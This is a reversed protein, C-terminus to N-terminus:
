CKIKQAEYVEKCINQFNVCKPSRTLDIEPLLVKKVFEDMNEPTKYTTKRKEILEKATKPMFGNVDAGVNIATPLLDVLAAGGDKKAHVHSYFHYRGKYFGDWEAHPYHSLFLDYEGDSILLNNHIEEFCQRFTIHTLQMIDWNGCILIKRCKIQRLIPVVNDPTAVDGLIHLVDDDSATSNINDILAQNMEDVNKFPRNSTQLVEESNFHLCGTFLNM